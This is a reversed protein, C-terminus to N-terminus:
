LNGCSPLSDLVEIQSLRWLYGMRQFFIVCSFGIYGAQRGAQSVITLRGQKCGPRGAKNEQNGNCLGIVQLDAFVATRQM